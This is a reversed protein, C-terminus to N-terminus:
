AAAPTSPDLTPRDSNASSGTSGSALAAVKRAPSRSRSPTVTATTMVSVM